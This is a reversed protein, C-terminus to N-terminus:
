IILLIAIVLVLLIVLLIARTPVSGASTHSHDPSHTAHDPVPAASFLKRLVRDCEARVPVGKGDIGTDVLLWGPKVIRRLALVSIAKMNPQPASGPMLARWPDIRAWDFYGSVAVIQEDRAAALM